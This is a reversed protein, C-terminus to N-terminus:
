GWMVPRHSLLQSFKVWTINWLKIAALLLNQDWVFFKCGLILKAKINIDPLNTHTLKLWINKSAIIRKIVVACFSAAVRECAGAIARARAGEKTDGCSSFLNPFLQISLGGKQITWMNIAWIWLYGELNAEHFYNDKNSFQKNSWSRFPSPPSRFDWKRWGSSGFSVTSSRGVRLCHLISM